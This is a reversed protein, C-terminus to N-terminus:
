PAREAFPANASAIASPEIRPFASISYFVEAQVEMIGFGRVGAL